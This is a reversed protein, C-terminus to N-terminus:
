SRVFKSSSLDSNALLSRFSLNLSIRPGARCHGITALFLSICRRYVVRRYTARAWSQACPMGVTPGCVFDRARGRETNNALARSRLVHGRSWAAAIGSEKEGRRGHGDAGTAVGARVKPGIYIDIATFMLSVLFIAFDSSLFTIPSICASIIELYGKM